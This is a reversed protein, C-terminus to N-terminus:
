ASEVPFESGDKHRAFLDLGAGMPRTRKDAAFEARHGMHRTRFREPILLEISQGQIEELHYGFLSLLQQNAFVIIGQNDVLVMADSSDLASRVLEASLTAVMLLGHADQPAALKENM